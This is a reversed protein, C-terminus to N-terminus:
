THCAVFVYMYIIYDVVAGIEKIPFGKLYWYSSPAAISLSKGIDQTRRKVIKLFELYDLGEQLIGAPIEPLDPAAPYEWDFDVGDLNHEQLFDIVNNALTVRNAKTVGQRFITYTPAETSFAWGGFSIIRKIGTMRKLKDFQAQVKSVDISYDPTIDIFAFHIHTYKKTDIDTVDMNLCDRESNWAEFYAVHAFSSPPSANNTINMGCSAICGNAGPKSTGPAGTDAPAPVCFDKTLGCQGWVNCCVNLPCPNLDKLATGDTPIKTGPVQPGCIANSVSAPMPPTGSSVCIKQDPQVNACGAWGWTKKNLSEIKATTLYYKEAIDFCIDGLKIV